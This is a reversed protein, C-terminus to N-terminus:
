KIELMEGPLTKAVVVDKWMTGEEAKLPTGPVLPTKDDVQVFHDPVVAYGGPRVNMSPKFKGPNEAAIKLDGPSVAIWERSRTILQSPVKSQYRVLVQGTQLVSIVEAPEWTGEWGAQIPMGPVLKTEATALE